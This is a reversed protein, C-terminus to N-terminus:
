TSARSTKQVTRRSYRHTRAHTRTRAPRVTSTVRARTGHLRRIPSTTPSREVASLWTTPSCGARRKTFGVSVAEDPVKFDNWSKTRGAKVEEMAKQVCYLGVLASYAQHYSRARDREIANSWQPVKWELEMEPMSATRPLAMQISDGTAKLFGLDVLGAKATVWQRAFPGGGTDCAVHRDTREDYIRPSVVWSYKDLFDRKQPKPITTKNWPHDKSVPNGLPDHTVFTEENEWGEFYASGLLIRIMLNMEVLDTSVLEGGIAIGPTVFRQRGWETMNAYNYDVYDPDDFCGWCVLDTERFGVKEYGPMAEYFFDYLDDHM